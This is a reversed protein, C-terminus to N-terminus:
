QKVVPVKTPWRPYRVDKFKNESKHARILAKAKEIVALAEERREQKILQCLLVVYSYGPHYNSIGFISFEFDRQHANVRDISRKFYDVAQDNKGLMLCCAGCRGWIDEAQTVEKMEKLLAYTTFAKAYEGNCFSSDGLWTLDRWYAGYNEKFKSKDLRILQEIYPRASPIFNLIGWWNYLTGIQTQNREEEIDYSLGRMEGGILDNLQDVALYEMAAGRLDGSALLQDGIQLRAQPSLPDIGCKTLARDLTDAVDDERWLDWQRRMTKVFEEKTQTKEIGEFCKQRLSPEHWTKWDANIAAAWNLDEEELLLGLAGFYDQKGILVKAQDILEQAKKVVTPDPMSRSCNHYVCSGVGQRNLIAVRLAKAKKQYVADSLEDGASALGKDISPTALCPGVTCLMLCVSIAFARKRILSSV